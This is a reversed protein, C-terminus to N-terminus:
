VQAPPGRRAGARALFLRRPPLADGTRVVSWVGSPWVHAALVLAAVSLASLVMAQCALEVTTKLSTTPLPKAHDAGAVVAGTEDPSLSVHTGDDPRLVIGLFGIVLCLAVYALSRRM